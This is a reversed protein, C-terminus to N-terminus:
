AVSLLAPYFAQVIVAPFQNDGAGIGPPFVLEVVEARFRYRWTRGRNLHRHVREIQRTRAVPILRVEDDSVVRVEPVVPFGQLLNLPDRVLLQASGPKGVQLEHVRIDHRVTAQAAIRRGTM